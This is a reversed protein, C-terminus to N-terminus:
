RAVPPPLHVIAPWVRDYPMGTQQQTQRVSEADPGGFVCVTRLGDGSLYSSFIRCGYQELCWAEGATAVRVAEEDFPEALTREVVIADADPEAESHRVIQATWLRAFPVQVKAQALRVSEADPAEYLCVMRQRDRSFYSKLYRVGYAELCSAARDESGQITEFAVPEPFVREVIVLSM